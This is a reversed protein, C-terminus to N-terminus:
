LNPLQRHSPRWGEGRPDEVEIVSRAEANGMIAQMENLFDSRATSDEDMMHFYQKMFDSPMRKLLADNSIHSILSSLYKLGEMYQRKDMLSAVYSRAQGRFHMQEINDANAYQTVFDISEPSPYQKVSVKSNGDIHFGELMFKTLDRAADTNPKSQILRILLARKKDTLNPPLKSVLDIVAQAGETDLIQASTSRAAALLLQEQLIGPNAEYDWLASNFASDVEKDQMQRFNKYLERHELFKNPEYNRNESEKLVKDMLELTTGQKKLGVHAAARFLVNLEDYTLSTFDSCEPSMRLIVEEFEGQHFATVGLRYSLHLHISKCMELQESSLFSQAIQLLEGIKNFLWQTIESDKITKTFRNLSERLSQEIDEDWLEVKKVFRLVEFSGRCLECIAQGSNLGEITFSEELVRLASSTLFRKAALHQPHSPLQIILKLEDTHDAIIRNFKASRWLFAIFGIDSFVLSEEIDSIGLARSKLQESKDFLAVFEPGFCVVSNGQNDNIPIGGQGLMVRAAEEEFAIRENYDRLANENKALASIKIKLLATLPKLADKIEKYNGHAIGMMMPSHTLCVLLSMAALANGVVKGQAVASLYCVLALCLNEYNIQDRLRQQCRYSAADLLNDDLQAIIINAEEIISPDISLLQSVLPQVSDGIWMALHPNLYVAGKQEAAGAKSTTEAAVAPTEHTEVTPAEDNEILAANQESNVNADVGDFSVSSKIKLFSHINEPNQVNVESNNLMRTLQKYGESRDNYFEVRNTLIDIVFYRRDPLPYNEYWLPIIEVSHKKALQLEPVAQNDEKEAFNKTYIYLLVTADKVGKSLLEDLNGAAQSIIDIDFTYDVGIATLFACLDACLHADARTYSIFVESSNREMGEIDATNTMDSFRDAISWHRRM